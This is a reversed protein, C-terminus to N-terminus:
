LLEREDKPKTHSLFVQNSCYLRQLINVFPERHKIPLKESCALWSNGGRKVRGEQALVSCSKWQM